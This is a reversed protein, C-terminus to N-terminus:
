AAVKHGAKAAVSSSEAPMASTAHQSKRNWTIVGMVNVGFYFIDLLLLLWLGTAAHIVGLVVNSFLWLYFGSIRMQANLVAGVGSTILAIAQLGWNWMPVTSIMPEFDLLEEM